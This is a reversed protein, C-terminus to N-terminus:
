HQLFMHRARQVRQLRRLTLPLAHSLCLALTTYRLLVNQKEFM